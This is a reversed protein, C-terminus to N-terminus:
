CCLRGELVPRSAPKEKAMRYAVESSQQEKKLEERASKKQQKIANVIGVQAYLNSSGALISIAVWHLNNVVTAKSKGLEALFETVKPTPM